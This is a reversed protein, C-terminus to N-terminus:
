GAGEDVACPKRASHILRRKVVVYCLFHVAFTAMWSVPYSIYLSKLTHDLLQFVTYVWVIRTGCVGLVSVLMPIVSKGMGRLQGCMVEMWGCSVYTACMINMRILAYEIVQPDDNYLHLLPVRLVYVVVSVVVGIVTATGLCIRTIRGIRDYRKAGVNQGTFTVAAHYVSNTSIYIFNDLNAGAANGAMALSGFSNISSQILVNSISFISGQLGAPLGLRIMQRLKDSYVRLARLEVRYCQDSHVLSIMVLTASLVQSVVTAIAVGAVGLDFGIVLLLNLVVNVLGSVTLFLLPRKTDGAARLVSAGFNYLLNAPMGLFYIKMYLTALDIVDDPSDMWELLQHASFFGFVAVVAGGIVSVVVATHVTESVDQGRRSGMQQAVMVSVGVSMGLFLNIILNILAGTSGVAALAQAGAFKGVVVSDAANYLLQLIGSLMLPVAYLVIRGLLPGETLDNNSQKFPRM